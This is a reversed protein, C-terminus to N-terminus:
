EMAKIDHYGGNGIGCYRLKVSDAIIYQTTDINIQIISCCNNWDINVEIAM